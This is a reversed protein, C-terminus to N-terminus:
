RKKKKKEFYDRPSPCATRLTLFIQTRRTQKQEKRRLERESGDAETPRKKKSCCNKTRQQKSRKKNDMRKNKNKQPMKKANQHEWCVRSSLTLTTTKERKRSRTANRWSVNNSKAMQSRLPSQRRPRHRGRRDFFRAGRERRFFSWMCVRRGLSTERYLVIEFLSFSVNKENEKERLTTSSQQKKSIVELFIIVQLIIM